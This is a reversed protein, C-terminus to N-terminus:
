PAATGVAHCVLPDAAEPPLEAEIIADLADRAAVLEAV